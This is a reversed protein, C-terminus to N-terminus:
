SFKKKRKKKGWIELKQCMTISLKSNPVMRGEIGQKEVNDSRPLPINTSFGTKYIYIYIYIYIFRLGCAGFIQPHRSKFFSLLRTFHFFLYVYYVLSFESFFFAYPFSPKKELFLNRSDKMPYFITLPQTLFFRTRKQILCLAVM